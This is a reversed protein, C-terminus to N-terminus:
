GNLNDGEALKTIIRNIRVSVSAPSIKLKKAISGKSIINTGGYGTTWEFIKKDRPDLDFYVYDAWINDPSKNGKFMFEEKESTGLTSPIFSKYKRM